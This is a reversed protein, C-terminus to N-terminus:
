ETHGTVASIVPQSLGMQHILKRIRITAEYGDMFPMNCDMLILEFDCKKVGTNTLNEQINKSIIEIAQTGSQAKQCIKLNVKVTHELIILLANINYLQDDVILIKQKLDTEFAKVSKIRKIKNLTGKLQSRTKEIEM